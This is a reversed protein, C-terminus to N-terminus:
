AFPGPGGMLEQVQAGTLLDEPHAQNYLSVLAHLSLPIYGEPTNGDWNEVIHQLAARREADTM